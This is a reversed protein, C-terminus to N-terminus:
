EVYGLAKLQDVLEPDPEGTTGRRAEAEAEAIRGLEPDVREALARWMSDRLRAWREPQQVCLNARETPDNELDYLEYYAPNRPKAAAYDTDPRSLRTLDLRGLEIASAAAARLRGEEDRVPLQNALRRQSFELDFLDLLGLELLFRPRKRAASIRARQADGVHIRVVERIQEGPQWATTPHRGGGGLAFIGAQHYGGFRLRVRAAVDRSCPALCRWFLELHFAGPAEARWANWGEFAIRDAFAALQPHQLGTTGAVYGTRALRELQAPAGVEVAGIKAAPALPDFRKWGSRKANELDYITAVVDYRGPETGEPVVVWRHEELRAGAPLVEWARADRTGVIDSGLSHDDQWAIGGSPRVFHIAVVAHRELKRLARWVSHILVADGPAASGEVVV